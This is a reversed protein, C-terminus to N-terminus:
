RMQGQQIEHTLLNHGADRYLRYRNRAARRANESDEVVELIREFQKFFSPINGTMNLLIPLNPCQQAHHGIQIPSTLSTDPQWVEHPVFSDLRFTWLLNDFQRTETESHTLLYVQQGQHWVKELLRCIFRNRAAGVCGYLLYFDVQPV